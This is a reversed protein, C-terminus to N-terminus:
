NAIVQLKKATNTNPCAGFVEWTNEVQYTSKREQQNCDMGGVIIKVCHIPDYCLWLM